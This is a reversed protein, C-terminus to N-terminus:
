LEFPQLQDEHFVNVTRRGFQKEVEWMTKSLRKTLKYPGKWLVSLKNLKEPNRIKVLVMQGEFFHAPFIRRNKNQRNREKDSRERALKRMEDTGEWLEKPSFGTVHHVATNISKEARAVHDVWSGGEAYTIKRLRDELTRNYREVLGMSQHRYPAILRHTVNMKLCWQAMEDSVYYPANDTVLTKMQGYDQMWSELVSVIKKTHIVRLRTAKAMRTASDVICHIYKFGGRGTPLPGIVDAYIVEGPVESYLVPRWKSRPFEQRFKACIECMDCVKKVIRMPVPDGRKKLAHFVKWPGWHAVLHENWVKQELEGEDVVINVGTSGFGGSARESGTLEAVEKMIPTKIQELILQAIRDGKGIYQPESSHNFLVVKIEGKYDPDIVGAGVNLGKKVTLGSRPALRGYVGKPLEVAIGTSIVARENTPICISEIGRIDYGAAGASMREPLASDDSLRKVKLVGEQDGWMQSCMITNEREDKEKRLLGNRTVIVDGHEMKMKVPRSLLDAGCNESGPHFRLEFGPENAILWNWRRLSRVDNDVLIEAKNKEFLSYGDTKIVLPVEGRFAKTKKCAWVVADLEGLYSSMVVGNKKSGLDVLEENGNSMKVFLMYGSFGGSWDTELTFSIPDCGPVMLEKMNALAKELVEGVHENVLGLWQETVGGKKFDKLDRRLPALIEETGKIVRRAYSIIGIVRELDRITQVPGLSERKKMLYERLSLRGDEIEYGLFTLKTTLWKVKDYNVKVGFENFRRYVEVAKEFLESPTEAGVLVDDSYQPTDLGKLIEAIRECFFVSSWLWGQPLRVWVFRRSGYMFGFLRSLTEDVPIGFFGDKLDIKMFYKWAPKIEWLKRWVDVQTTGEKQFYKNLKRFDNTFRYTGNPKKICLLPNLYVKEAVSVERLYGRQVYADLQESIIRRDAVNEISYQTRTGYETPEEWSVEKRTVMLKKMKENVPHSSLDGVNPFMRRIKEEIESETLRDDSSEKGLRNIRSETTECSKGMNDKQKEEIKEGLYRVSVDAGFINVLITKPTLQMVEPNSNWINIRVQGGKTVSLGAILGPRSLGCLITVGGEIHMKYPLFVRTWNKPPLFVSKGALISVSGEPHMKLGKEGNLNWIQELLVKGMIKKDKEESKEADYGVPWRVTPRRLKKQLICYLM